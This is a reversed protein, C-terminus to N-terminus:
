VEDEGGLLPASGILSSKQNKLERFPPVLSPEKQPENSHDKVSLRTSKSCLTEFSLPVRFGEKSGGKLRYWVRLLGRHLSSRGMLLYWSVKGKVEKSALPDKSSPRPSRSPDPPEPRPDHSGPAKRHYHLGLTFEGKRPASPPFAPIKIHPPVRLFANGLTSNTGPLCDM